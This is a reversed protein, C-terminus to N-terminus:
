ADPKDKGTYAQAEAETNFVKRVCRHSGVWYYCAWGGNGYYGATSSYYYGMIDVEHFPAM